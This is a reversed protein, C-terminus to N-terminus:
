PEAATSRLLVFPGRAETCPYAPDTEFGVARLDTEVEDVGYFRYVDGPFDGTAPDAASRFVLSLRGGPRMTRALEALTARLNPLFYITHVSMVKDFHDDPFPLTAGRYHEVAINDCGRQRSVFRRAMAVMEESHDVGVVQGRAVRRSLEVLSRGHGCGFDLVRDAPHLELSDIAMQNETTTEAAMIRGIIWGLLGSPRGGQRAIFRPRRM